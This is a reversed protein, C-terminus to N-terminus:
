YLLLAKVLNNFTNTIVIFYGLNGKCDLEFLNLSGNKKLFIM